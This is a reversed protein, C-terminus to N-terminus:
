PTPTIIPTPLSDANPTPHYFHNFSIFIALGLLLPIFVIQLWSKATLKANIYPEKGWEPHLQSVKSITRVKMMLVLWFIALLLATARSSFSYIKDAPVEQIRMYVILAIIVFGLISVLIGTLVGTKRLESFEELTYESIPKNM